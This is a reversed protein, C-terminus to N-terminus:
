AIEDSVVLVDTGPEPFTTTTGDAWTAEFTLEWIGPTIASLQASSFEFTGKGRNTTQDGDKTFTGTVPTDAERHRAQYEIATANTLDAAAPDGNEDTGQLVCSRVQKADGKRVYFTTM